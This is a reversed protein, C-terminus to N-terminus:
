AWQMPNEEEHLAEVRVDWGERHLLEKFRDSFLVFAAKETEFHGADILALGLTKARLADHHSVDGTVLVDAGMSAAQPVLSGGSGGVVAVRRLLKEKGGCVGLVRAGLLPKIRQAFSFLPEPEHLEGIRGLGKSPHLLNKQLVQINKLHFLSALMDNIGGEAMDLNTHAAALAIGAECAKFIADGPYVERNLCSLSPFILPHHTLILQAQRRSAERVVSLAPDLATLIKKVELSPNGVQLGPNDWAEATGAPAIKELLALIDKVKPTMPSPTLGASQTHVSFFFACEKLTRRKRKGPRHIQHRIEQM